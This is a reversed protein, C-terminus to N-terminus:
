TPTCVCEAGNEGFPECSALGTDCSCDELTWAGDVCRALNFTECHPPDDTTCPTGEATCGCSANEATLESCGLSIFAPGVSQCLEQCSEQQFQLTDIDCVFITDPESDCRAQGPICVPADGECWCRAGRADSQVLCGIVGGREACVEHCDTERWTRDVCQWLAEADICEDPADACGDGEHRTYDGPPPPSPPGACQLGLAALLALGWRPGRAARRSHPIANVDTPM